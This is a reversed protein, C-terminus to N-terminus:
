GAERHSLQYLGCAFFPAHEVVRRDTLSAFDAAPRPASFLHHDNLRSSWIARLAAVEDQRYGCNSLGSILALDAVDYGLLRWAGDAPLVLRSLRPEWLVRAADSMVSWVISIAITVVGGATPKQGLPPRSDWLGLANAQAGAAVAAPWVARDVSLPSSVDRRLLYLARRSEDWNPALTKPAVRADFGLLVEGDNMTNERASLLACGARRLLWRIAPWVPLVPLHHPESQVASLALPRGPLPFAAHVAAGSRDGACSKGSLAPMRSDPHAPLRHRSRATGGRDLRGGCDLWHPGTAAEVPAAEAETVLIGTGAAVLAPGIQRYIGPAAVGIAGGAAGGDVVQAAVRDAEIEAADHPQSVHLSKAAVKEPTKQQVDPMPAAQGDKARPTLQFAGEAEDLKETTFAALLQAKLTEDSGAAVERMRAIHEQMSDLLPQGEPQSPTAKAEPGEGAMDQGQMQALKQQAFGHVRELKAALALVRASASLPSQPVGAQAQSDGAQTQGTAAPAPPADTARDMRPQSVTGQQITHTLEHALLRRGEQTGPSFQGSAFAVHNGVTYARANVAKASEAAGSDRHIRVAGFDRGFRPEMFARTSADLPEGSSSMVARIPSPQAGIAAEGSDAHRDLREKDEAACAACARQLPFSRSPRLGITEVPGRSIAIARHGAAPRGQTAINRDGAPPSKTRSASTRSM